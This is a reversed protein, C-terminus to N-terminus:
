PRTESSPQDSIATRRCGSLTGVSLHPFGRLLAESGRSARADGGRGAESARRPDGHRHDRAPRELARHQAAAAPVHRAVREGRAPQGSRDGRAVPHRRDRRDHPAPPTDLRRYDAPSAGTAAEHREWLQAATEPDLTPRGSRPPVRRSSGASVWSTKSDAVPVVGPPPPQPLPDAVFTGGYRGRRRVLFGTDALERIAERVTDRSVGYLAALEREPPLRSRLPSSGSASPRCSGPWPTRSRMARACPGTSWGRVERLPAESM